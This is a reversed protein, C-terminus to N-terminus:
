SRPSLWQKRHSLVPMKQQLKARADLDIPAIALGEGSPIEDLVNGWPDIICSHGYTVRKADHTGGQNAAVIFMQNEIARARLLVQWHARGTVETFAAPVATMALHQDALYRFYEPFRLDYCIAVGFPCPEWPIVGLKDGAVYQSSESYTAQADAVAADFLHAKDYRGIMQGRENYCHSAAYVKQPHAKGESDCVRPLTGGVIAIGHTAALQSLSGRIIGDAEEREAVARPNNTGFSAFNEPLVAIQAGRKAAEGVWYAIRNLNHEINSSSIIQIAAATLM